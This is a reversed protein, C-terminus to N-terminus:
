DRPAKEKAVEELYDRVETGAIALFQAATKAKIREENSRETDEGIALSAELSKAILTALIQWKMM